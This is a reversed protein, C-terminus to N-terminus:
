LRRQQSQARECAPLVLTMTTGVGPKSEIELRGGHDRMVRSVIALGLGSGRGGNRTTFFAETARRQVEPAMGIGNDTISIRVWRGASDVAASLSVVVRGGDHLEDLRVVIARAANNLLNLVVRTLLQGSVTVAHAGPEFAVELKTRRPMTCRFLEKFQEWWATVSTEAFDEPITRLDEVALLHLSDSLHQLHGIGCRLAELHPEQEDFGARLAIARAANLHARLPLLINQIDHSLGAGLMGISEMRDSTRTREALAAMAERLESTDHASLTIGGISGDERTWPAASWSVWDTSGDARRLRDASQRFIEGKLARRYVDRYREPFDSVLEPHPRGLWSREGPFYREIWSVSAALYRLEHDLVAVLVPSNAVHRVLERVAPDHIRARETVGRVDACSAFRRTSGLSQPTPACAAVDIQVDM